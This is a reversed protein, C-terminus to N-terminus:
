LDEFANKTPAPAMKVKSRDAPNMGLSGLAAHLRAIIAVPVDSIPTHRVFAILRATFELHHSDSDGLVGPPLRTVLEQWCGLEVETLTSPPAGIPRLPQLENERDARREPHKAFAGRLQLM